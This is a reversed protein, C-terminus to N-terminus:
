NDSACPAADIGEAMQQPLVFQRVGRHDLVYLPIYRDLIENSDALSLSRNDLIIWRGENRVAVVAHMDHRLKSNLIAVRLDDPAFGADILAAYKLVSFQKCDGVGSALTALPSTWKDDTARTRDFSSIAFNAARNIHGIRALAEYPQGEDVIAIFKLAAASPCSKPDLRCQKVITQDAKMQSQLDRWAVWLPGESVAVTSLGFPEGIDTQATLGLLLLAAAAGCIRRTWHVNIRM